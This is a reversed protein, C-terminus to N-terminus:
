GKRRRQPPPCREEDWQFWGEMEWCNLRTDAQTHNGETKPLAANLALVVKSQWQVVADTAEAKGVTQCLHDWLAVPVVVKGLLWRDRKQALAKWRCVTDRYPGWAREWASSLDSLFCFALTGAVAQNHFSQCLRCRQRPVLEQWFTFHSAFGPSDVVGFLWRVWKYPDWKLPRWSIAHIGTHSHQPILMRAWTKHPFQVKEGHFCIDWHDTPFQPPQVPLRRSRKALRDVIENGEVGIHSHVHCVCLHKERVLVRVRNIWRSLTVRPSNGAVARLVGFSDTFITSGVLAVSSAILLAMLEAKYISQAGPPRGMFVQGDPLLVACGAQGGEPFFSGDTYLAKSLPNWTVPTQLGYVQLGEVQLTYQVVGAPLAMYQSMARQVSVSSGLCSAGLSACARRHCETSFGCCREAPHLQEVYRHVVDLVRIPLLTPVHALGIGQKSFLTKSVLAKPLGKVGQVFDCMLTSLKQLGQQWPPLCESLYLVRPVLLLNVLLVRQPFPIPQNHFHVVATEISRIVLLYADQARFSAVVPHGLHTAHQVGTISVLGPVEGRAGAQMPILPDLSHSLHAPMVLWKPPVPLSEPITMQVMGRDGVQLLVTKSLNWHWGFRQMALRVEQMGRRLHVVSSFVLALDDMFAAMKEAARSCLTLCANFLMIFLLPAIPM